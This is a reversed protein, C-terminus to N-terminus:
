AGWRAPSCSWNQARGRSPSWPRARTVASHASRTSCPALGARQPSKQPNEDPRFHQQWQRDAIRKPAPLCRAPGVKCFLRKALRWPSPVPLMQSKTAISYIAIFISTSHAIHRKLPINPQSVIKNCRLLNRQFHDPFVRLTLAMIAVLSQSLADQCAPRSMNRGTVPWGDTWSIRMLCSTGM